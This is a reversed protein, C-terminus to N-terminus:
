KMRIPENVKITPVIIDDEDIRKILQANFNEPFVETVLFEARYLPTFTKGNQDLDNKIVYGLMGPIINDAKGANVTIVDGRKNIIRYKTLIDPNPFNKKIENAMTIFDKENLSLSNRSKQYSYNVFAYDAYLVTSERKLKLDSGLGTCVIRYDIRVRGSAGSLKEDSTIYILLVGDTIRLLTDITQDKRAAGDVMMEIEKTRLADGSKTSDGSRSINILSVEEFKKLEMRDLLDFRKTNFLATQFMDAISNKLYDANGTMDVAPPIGIKFLPSRVSTKTIFENKEISLPPFGMSSVGVERPMSLPPPPTESVYRTSPACGVLQGIFIVVGILQLNYSAAKRM